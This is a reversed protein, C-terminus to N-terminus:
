LRNLFVKGGKSANTAPEYRLYGLRQLDGMCKNFTRRSMRAAYAIDERYIFFPNADQQQQKRHSLSLYLSIHYAGIEPHATIAEFFDSLWEHLEM